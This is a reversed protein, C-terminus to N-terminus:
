PTSPTGGSDSSPKNKKEGKEGAVGAAPGIKATAGKGFYFDLPHTDPSIREPIPSVTKPDPEAIAAPGGFQDRHCSANITLSAQVDGPLTLAIQGEFDVGLITGSDADVVLEGSAKVPRTKDRWGDREAPTPDRPYVYKQVGAPPEPGPRTGPLRPPDQSLQIAFRIGDRGNDKVM